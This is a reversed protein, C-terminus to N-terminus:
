VPDHNWSDIADQLSSLSDHKHCLYYLIFIIVLTEM